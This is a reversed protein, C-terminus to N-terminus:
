VGNFIKQYERALWRRTRMVKNNVNNETIHYHEAVLRSPIDYLTVSVYIEYNIRNKKRLKQFITKLYGEAELALIVEDVEYGSEVRMEMMATLVDSDVHEHRRFAKKYYDLAKHFSMRTILNYLKEEDTFDVEEGMNYLLEFVDQCVDEAENANPDHLVIKAINIVRSRHKRYISVFDVNNM